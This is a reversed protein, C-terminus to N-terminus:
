KAGEDKGASAAPLKGRISEVYDTPEVKAGEKVKQTGEVVVRDHAQLGSEILWETGLQQGVHVPRIHVTHNSDVVAVQWAGQLEMVARQPLLLAGQRMETRARVLAYQGPRLFSDPNEFEAAAQLTGTSSDVNRGTIIWKGPAPYVSGDTLILQLPVDGPNPHEPNASDAPRFFTLYFRESVNFYARIPNVTSVTTLLGTNPGVLDGVQAQALGAVGDVPSIIRTFGLNLRASEIAAQDANVAAKAMFSAQVADDLQQQSIAQTKALPTYRKVDLETKELMAEDQRKKALAQDLTAQFPRPDIEFLLDGQKVVGGEHYDQKQLCGQVQAHIQANPYGDLTGIWEQYIPVDKPVVSIVEVNVPATAPRPKEHCGSLVLGLVLSIFSLCLARM